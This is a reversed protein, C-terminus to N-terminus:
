GELRMRDPNFRLTTLGEPGDKHKALIFVVRRQDQRDPRHLFAVAYTDQEIEGSDRLDSLRPARSEKECDRSLQSCVLVPADIQQAMEALRNSKEATRENSNGGSVSRLQQLYDVVVLAPPGAMAAFRKVALTVQAATKGVASEVRVKPTPMEGRAVRAVDEREIATFRGAQIRPLPVGTMASVQRAARQLPTMETVLILVPRGSTAAVNVAVQDALTSKGTAPRAALVYMGTKLGQLLEDVATLGTLYGCAGVGSRNVVLANEAVRRALRGLDGGEVKGTPDAMGTLDALLSSASDAYTTGSSVALVTRQAAALLQRRDAMERVIAAYHEVNGVDPMADVLSQLVGVGGVRELQHSTRLSDTLRVVDLPGSGNQAVDAMTAFILRHEERYFHEPRLTDVRWTAEPDVMLAGLVSREAEINHPPTVITM